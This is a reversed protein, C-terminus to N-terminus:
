YKYKEFLRIKAQNFLPIFTANYAIRSDKEKKLVSDYIKQAIDFEKSFEKQLTTIIKQKPTKSAMLNRMRNIIKQYVQFQGPALNQKNAKEEEVSEAAYNGASYTGLQDALEIGGLDAIYGAIMFSPALPGALQALEPIQILKAWFHSWDKQTIEEGNVKKSLMKTAQIALDIRGLWKLYPLAKQLFSVVNKTKSLQNVVYFDDTLESGIRLWKNLFDPNKITFNKLRNLDQLKGPNNEFIKNYKALVNPNRNLEKMIPVLDKFSFYLFPWETVSNADLFTDAIEYADKNDDNKKNKIPTVPKTEAIKKLISDLNSAQKFQGQADLKSALSVINNILLHKKM